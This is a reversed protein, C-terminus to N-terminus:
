LKNNIINYALKEASRRDLQKIFWFAPWIEWKMAMRVMSILPYQSCRCFLNDESTWNNIKRAIDLIEDSLLPISKLIEAESYQKRSEM